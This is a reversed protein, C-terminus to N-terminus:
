PTLVEKYVINKTFTDNALKKKRKGKNMNKDIGPVVFVKINSRAMARSLQVYLQGIFMPNNSRSNVSVRAQLM